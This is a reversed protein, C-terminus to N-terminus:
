TSIYGAKEQEDIYKKQKLFEPHKDLYEEQKELESHKVDSM